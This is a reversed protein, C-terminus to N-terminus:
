KVGDRGRRNPGEAIQVRRVRKKSAGKQQEGTVQMGKNQLFRPKLWGEKNSSEIKYNRGGSLILILAIFRIVTTTAIEMKDVM